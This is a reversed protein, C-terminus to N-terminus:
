FKSILRNGLAGVAVVTRAPSRVACVILTRIASLFRREALLKPFVINILFGAKASDSFAHIVM